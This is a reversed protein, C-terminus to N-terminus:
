LVQDVQVVIIILTQVLTTVEVVEVVVPTQVEQLEKHYVEQDVVEQDVLDELIHEEQDVQTVVVEVVVPMLQALDMLIIQLDLEELIVETQDLCLHDLQVLEVVVEVVVQILNFERIVVVVLM